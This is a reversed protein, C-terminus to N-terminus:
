DSSLVQQFSMERAVTCRPFTTMPWCHGMVNSPAATELFDMLYIVATHPPPTLPLCSLASQRGLFWLSHFLVMGSCLCISELPKRCHFSILCHGWKWFQSAFFTMYGPLMWRGMRLHRSPRTPSQQSAFNQSWSPLMPVSGQSRWSVCLALSSYGNQTSVISPM